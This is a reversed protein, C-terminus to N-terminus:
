NDVSATNWPRKGLNWESPDLEYDPFMETLKDLLQERRGMTDFGFYLGKEQDEWGVQRIKIKQPAKPILTWANFTNGTTFYNEYIYHVSSGRSCWSSKCVIYKGKADQGFGFAYLAHGWEVPAGAPPYTPYKLDRWDINRGKVGFVVGKYNLIGWAVGDISQNPLVFYSAEIDSAREEATIGSGDRMSRETQPYPDPAEDRTAHGNKTIQKLGDRIYAGGQPLFVRSHLDRRSFDKGTLQWHYYSCSQSVCSLSSGQDENPPESLRFEKSWDINPAGMIEEAQYDRDDPEDERAGTPLGTTQEPPPFGFLAKLFGILEELM